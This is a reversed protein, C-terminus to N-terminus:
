KDRSTCRLVEEILSNVVAQIDSAEVVHEVSTTEPNFADKLVEATAISVDHIVGQDLYGDAHKVESSFKKIISETFPGELGHAPKPGIHVKM